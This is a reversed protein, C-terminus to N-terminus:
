HIQQAKNLNTILNFSSRILGSLDFFMRMEYLNDDTSLIIRLNYSTDRYIVQHAKYQYPKKFKLFRIKEFLPLFVLM